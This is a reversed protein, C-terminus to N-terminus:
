LEEENDKANGMDKSVREVFELFSLREVETLTIARLGLELAVIREHVPTTTHNPGLHYTNYEHMTDLRDEICKHDIAAQSAAIKAGEILAADIKGDSSEIRKELPAVGISIQKAAWRGTVGSVKEFLVFLGIVIAVTSALVAVTEATQIGM